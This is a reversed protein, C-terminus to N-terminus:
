DDMLKWKKQLLIDAKQTGTYRSLRSATSQFYYQNELPGCLLQLRRKLRKLTGKGQKMGRGVGAIEDSAFSSFGQKAETLLCLKLHMIM